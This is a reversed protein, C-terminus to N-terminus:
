KAVGKDQPIEYLSHDWKKVKTFVFGAVIAALAVLWGSYVNFIVPYDGYSTKLDTMLNIVM